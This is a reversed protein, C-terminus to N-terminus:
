GCGKGNNSMTNTVDTIPVVCSEVQRPAQPDNSETQLPSLQTDAVTKDAVPALRVQSSALHM